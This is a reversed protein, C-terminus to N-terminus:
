SSFPLWPAYAPIERKGLLERHIQFRYLVKKLDAQKTELEAMRRRNAEHEAVVESQKINLQTQDVAKM